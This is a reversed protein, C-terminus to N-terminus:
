FTRYAENGVFGMKSFVARNTMALVEEVLEFRANAEPQLHLDPQPEIAGTRDLMTALQPKTLETGNWLIGNRDTVVLKSPRAGPELNM